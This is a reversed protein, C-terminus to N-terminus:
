ETAKQREAQVEQLRAVVRSHITHYNGDCQSRVTGMVLRSCTIFVQEDIILTGDDQELIRWQTQMRVDLPAKIVMDVGDLANTYYYTSVVNSSWIGKPLMDMNDTVQYAKANPYEPDTPLPKLDKLHPGFRM